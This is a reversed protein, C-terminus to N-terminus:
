TTRSRHVGRRLLDPWRARAFAAEAKGESALLYGFPSLSAIHANGRGFGNILDIESAPIVSVFEYGTQKKLTSILVDGASLVADQPRTSPPLAVVV